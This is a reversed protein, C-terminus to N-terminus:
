EGYLKKRTKEEAELAKRYKKELREGRRKDAEKLQADTPFCWGEPLKRPAFDSSIDWFAATFSLPENGSGVRYARKVERQEILRKIVSHVSALPNSSGIDYGLAEVRDRIEPADLPKMAGALVWRCADTLTKPKFIEIRDKPFRDGDVKMRLAIVTQRQRAIQHELADRQRFMDILEKEAGKLVRRYDIEAV